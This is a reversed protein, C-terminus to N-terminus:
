TVATTQGVYWSSYYNFPTGVAPHALDTVMRIISCLIFIILTTYFKQTLLVHLQMYEIGALKPASQQMLFCLSSVVLTTFSARQILLLCSHQLM